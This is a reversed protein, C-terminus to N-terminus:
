NSVKVAKGLVRVVRDQEPETMAPFLPITIAEAYYREAEPCLTYPMSCPAGTSDAASDDASVEPHVASDGVTFEVPCAPPKSCPTSSLPKSGLRAFDPQRYVPIYHLNVGIGSTRLEEFVQDRTRKIENLKLRIVYLHRGSHPIQPVDM